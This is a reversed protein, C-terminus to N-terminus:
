PGVGEDEAGESRGTEVQVGEESEAGKMEMGDDQWATWGGPDAGYGIDRRVEEQNYYGMFVLTRIGWLGRRLSMLPTRQLRELFSTRRSPPLKVLTRGTSLVPLLNVLRLFLRIQMRVSKPRSALAREMIDVAERWGEEDLADPSPLVVRGIARLPGQLSQLVPSDATAPM